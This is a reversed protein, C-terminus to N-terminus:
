FLRGPVNFWFSITVDRDKIVVGELPVEVFVRESAAAPTGSPLRETQVLENQFGKKSIASKNLQDMSTHLGKQHDRPGRGDGMGKPAAARFALHEGETIHCNPQLIDKYEADLYIARAPKISTAEYAPWQSDKPLYFICEQTLIFNSDFNQILAFLLRYTEDLFEDKSLFEFILRFAYMLQEVNDECRFTTAKDALTAMARQHFGEIHKSRLKIVEMVMALVRSIEVRQEVYESPISTLATFALFQVDRCFRFAKLEILMEILKPQYINKLVARHQRQTCFNGVLMTLVRLSLLERHVQNRTFYSSVLNLWTLLAVLNEDEKTNNAAIPLSPNISSEGQENGEFTKNIRRSSSRKEKGGQSMRSDNPNDVGNITVGPNHKKWADLLLNVNSINPLKEQNREPQKEATKEEAVRPPTPLSFVYRTLEYRYFSAQDMKRLEDYTPSVILGSLDIRDEMANMGRLFEIEESIDIKTLQNSVFNGTYLIDQIIMQITSERTLIYNRVPVPYSACNLINAISMVFEREHNSHQGGKSLVARIKELLDLVIKTEVKGIYLQCKFYFFELIKPVFVLLERDLASEEAEFVNLNSSILEQLSTKFQMDARIHLEPQSQLDIIPDATYYKKMIVYKCLKEIVGLYKQNALDGTDKMVKDMVALISDIESKKNCDVAAKAALLFVAVREKPGISTADSITQILERKCIEEAPPSDLVVKCLSRLGLPKEEPAMASWLRQLAEVVSIAADSGLKILYNLLPRNTLRGVLAVPGEDFNPNVPVPM